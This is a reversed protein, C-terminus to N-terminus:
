DTTDFSVQNTLTHHTHKLQASLIITKKILGKGIKTALEELGQLQNFTKNTTRDLPTLFNKNTESNKKRMGSWSRTKYLVPQKLLLQLTPMKM